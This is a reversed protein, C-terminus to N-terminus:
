SSIFDWENKVRHGGDGGPVRQFPDRTDCLPRPFRRACAPYCPDIPKSNPRKSFNWTRSTEVDENATLLPRSSAELPGVTAFLRAATYHSCKGLLAGMISAVERPCGM